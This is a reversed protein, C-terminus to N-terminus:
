KTKKKQQQMFGHLSVFMHFLLRFLSLIPFPVFLACLRRRWKIRGKKWIQFWYFCFVVYLYYNNKPWLDREYWGRNSILIFLLFFFSICRNQSAHEIQWIGPQKKKIEEEKLLLMEEFWWTHAGFLNISLFFSIWRCVAAHALLLLLIYLYISFFSIFIVCAQIKFCVLMERKRDQMESWYVTHVKFSTANWM